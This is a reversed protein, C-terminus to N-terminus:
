LWRTAVCHMTKTHKSVKYAYLCAYYHGLCHIRHESNHQSKLLHQKNKLEVCKAIACDTARRLMCVHMTAASGAALPVEEMDILPTAERFLNLPSFRFVAWLVM